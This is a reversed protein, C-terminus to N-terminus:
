AVKQVDNGGNSEINDVAVIRSLDTQDINSIVLDQGDNSNLSANLGRSERKILISRGAPDLSGGLAITSYSTFNVSSVGVPVNQGISLSIQQETISLTEHPFAGIGAAISNGIILSVQYTSDFLSLYGVRPKADLTLSVQYGTTAFASGIGVNIIQDARVGADIGTTSLSAVGLPITNDIELDQASSSITLAVTGVTPTGDCVVSVQYSTTGLTSGLGPRPKADMTPTPAYETIAVSVSGPELVPSSQATPANETITLSATNPTVVVPTGVVMNPPYGTITNAVTGATPQAGLELTVPFTTTGTLNTHGVTIIMDSKWSVQKPSITVSATGVVIQGIGWPGGGWAGYGWGSGAM